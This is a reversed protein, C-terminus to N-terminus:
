LMSLTNTIPPTTQLVLQGARNGTWQLTAVPARLDNAGSIFHVGKRLEWRGDALCRLTGAELRNTASLLLTVGHLEVHKDAGAGLWRRFAALGGSPSSLDRPEFTVGELVGVPFLGIRFFGRREYDM